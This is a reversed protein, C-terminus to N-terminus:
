GNCSFIVGAVNQVWLNSSTWCWSGPGKALGNLLVMVIYCTNTGMKFDAVVMQVFNGIIQLADLGVYVNPLVFFCIATPLAVARTDLGQGGYIICPCLRVCQCATMPLSRSTGKFHTVVLLSDLWVRGFRSQMHSVMTVTQQLLDEFLLHADGGNGRTGDSM